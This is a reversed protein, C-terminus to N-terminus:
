TNHIKVKFVTIKNYNYTERLRSEPPPYSLFQFFLCIDIEKHPTHTNTICLPTDLGLRSVLLLSSTPFSPPLFPPKM